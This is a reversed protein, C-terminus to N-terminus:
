AASRPGYQQRILILAFHLNYEKEFDELIDYNDFDDIIEDLQIDLSKKIDQYMEDFTDIDSYSSPRINSNPNGVNTKIILSNYSPIAMNRFPRDIYSETLPAPRLLLTYNNIAEPLSPLYKRESISRPFKSLYIRPPKNLVELTKVVGKMGQAYVYLPCLSFLFVVLILNTFRFLINIRKM